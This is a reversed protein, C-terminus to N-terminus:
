YTSSNEMRSVRRQVGTLESEVVVAKVVSQNGQFINNSGSSLNSLPEPALSIGGGAKNIESLLTPFMSTSNANIVAEGPALTAPVSDITSPGSGPVIGGRAATFKQSAIIGVQAASLAGNIGALVFSAPPPVSGLAQLISQAGLMVANSIRLAKDQNFQKKKIAREKQERQDNLEEIRRNYEEETILRNALEDDLAETRIRANEQVSFNAQQNLQSFLQGLLDTVQTGINVTFDTIRGLIVAWDKEWSEGVKIFLERFYVYAKETSQKASESTSDFQKENLQAIKLNSEAIIKQRQEETLETNTLEIDRQTEVQNIRLKTLQDSYKKRINEKEEETSATNIEEQQLTELNLLQIDSELQKKSNLKQLDYKKNIATIKKQYEETIAATDKGAADALATLDEYHNALDQLEKEQADTINSQRDAEIADYYALLKDNYEKIRKLRDEEEKLQEAKTQKRYDADLQDLKNQYELQLNIKRSDADLIIAYTDTLSSNLNDIKDQTQFYEEMKDEDLYQKSLKRLSEKQAKLNDYEDLYQQEKFKRDADAAKGESKIADRDFDYLDKKLAKIKNNESETRQTKLELLEIETQLNIRASQNELEKQKVFSNTFSQQRTYFKNIEGAQKELSTNLKETAVSADETSSSFLAYAGVLATIGAIILFIPNANMVANMVKQATTATGTAVAQAVTAKNFLTSSATAAAFSAKINTITDGLGGLSQVADSLGAVAQLRVLTQEVAGSEVGFLAMASTVGQFGAIGISAVGTIGKALNEIPAGATANIVANTDAIQDKLKGAATTLENFRASGPELGQLELTMAKLQAKLSATSKATNDIASATGNISTNLNNIDKSTNKLENNLSKINKQAGSSDIMLKMQPLVQAM